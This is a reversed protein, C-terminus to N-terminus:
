EEQKVPHLASATVVLIAIQAEDIANALFEWSEDVLGAPRRCGRALRDRFAHTVVLTVVTRIEHRNSANNGTAKYTIACQENWKEM